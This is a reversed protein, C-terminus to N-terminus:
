SLEDRRFIGGSADVCGSKHGSSSVSEAGLFVGVRARDGHWWGSGCLWEFHWRFSRDDGLHPNHSIVMGNKENYISTCPFILRESIM